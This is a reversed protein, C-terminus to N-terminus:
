STKSALGRDLKALLRLLTNRETRTLSSTARKDHALGAKLAVNAKQQGRATLFHGTARRDGPLRRREVWGLRALRDVLKTINPGHAALTAALAGHSIGPNSQVAALIAFAGPSVDLHKLGTYYLQFLRVQVVRTLHGVFTDMLTYDVANPRGVGNARKRNKAKVARM